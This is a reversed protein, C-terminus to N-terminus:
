LSTLTELSALDEEVWEQTNCLRHSLLASGSEPQWHMIMPHFDVDQHTKSYIDIGLRVRQYEHYHESFSLLLIQPRKQRHLRQRAFTAVSDFFSTLILGCRPVIEGSESVFGAALDHCYEDERLYAKGDIHVFSEAVKENKKLMKYARNKLNRESLIKVTEAKICRNPKTLTEIFSTRESPIKKELNNVLIVPIIRVEKKYHRILSAAIKEAFAMNEMAWRRNHESLPLSFHSIELIIVLPKPLREIKHLLHSFLTEFVKERSQEAAEAIYAV